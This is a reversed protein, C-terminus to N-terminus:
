LFMNDSGPPPLEDNDPDGSGFPRGGPGGGFGGFSGGGPPRPRPANPGIPDFRAGPPVAGPPLYSGPGAPYRPGGMGGPFGGYGGGYGGGGMGFIPHDPGVFMGGGPHMGGRPPILGPAAAFPDLDVDGIGYPNRGPFPGGPYPGFRSPPPVFNPDILGSGPGSFPDYPPRPGNAASSSSSPERASSTSASATPEYGEKLLNPAVRDIIDRRVRFVFDVLAKEGMSTMVAHVTAMVLDGASRLAPQGATAPDLAEHLRSLIVNTSMPAQEAELAAATRRSAEDSSAM